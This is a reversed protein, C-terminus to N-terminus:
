GEFYIPKSGVEGFWCIDEDVLDLKLVHAAADPLTIDLPIEVSEGPAVRGSLEARAYDLAQLTRDAGLLQIGLRVCGRGTGPIWITNGTNTATVTGTVRRGDRTLRAALDGRLIHPRRSDAIGGGKRAVLIPHNFMAQIVYAAFYGPRDENLVM